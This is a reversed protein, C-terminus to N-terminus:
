VRGRGDANTEDVSPRGPVPARHGLLRDPDDPAPDHTQRDTPLERSPPRAGADHDELLLVPQGRVLGPVVRPHHVGADVVLGPAELGLQAGPAALQQAVVAQLVPDRVVLAAFEHHRDVGGLQTPQVGELLGRAAVVYGPQTADTGVLEALDLRVGGPQGGEVGRPRRDGVEGRHRASQTGLDLRGAAPDHQRGLDGAQGPGAAPDLDPAAVAHM